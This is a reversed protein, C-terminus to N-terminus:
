VLFGGACILGVGLFSSVDSTWRIVRTDSPGDRSIQVSVVERRSFEIWESLANRSAAIFGREGGFCFFFVFDSGGGTILSREEEYGEGRGGLHCLM